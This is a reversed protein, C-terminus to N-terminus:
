VTDVLQRVEEAPVARRAGRLREVYLVLRVPDEAAHLSPQFYPFDLAMVRHERVLHPLWPNDVHVEGVVAELPGAHVRRADRGFCARLGRRLMGGVGARRAAAAVAVYGVLGVSVNGVYLGTAAGVVTGAREAVLVHWDLDTWLGAERERLTERWEPLPVLEARPFTRKLLGHARGLAPDPHGEIERVRIDAKAAKRM